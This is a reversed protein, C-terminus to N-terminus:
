REAAMLEDAYDVASQHLVKASEHLLALAEQFEAAPSGEGSLGFLYNELAIVMAQAHTVIAKLENVAAWIDEDTCDMAAGLDQNDAPCALRVIDTATLAMLSELMGLQRALRKVAQVEQADRVPESLIAKVMQAATLTYGEVYQLRYAVMEARFPSSDVGAAAPTFCVWFWLVSLVVGRTKSHAM